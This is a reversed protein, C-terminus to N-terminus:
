AKVRRKFEETLYSAVVTEDSVTAEPALLGVSENISRKCARVSAPDNSAISRALELVDFELKGLDVVRHVFGHQQARDASVTAGALLVARAFQTGGAAVIRGITRDDLLLGFRAVPIAFSSPHSALRFDCASALLCGGGICSGHIMAITPLEFSWVFELCRLIAHWLKRADDANGIARLEELDAGSAFSDGKGTFVITRVGEQKLKEMADPISNWMQLSIANHLHPRNFAIFGADERRETIITSEL